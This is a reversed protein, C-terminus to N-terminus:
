QRFCFDSSNTTVDRVCAAANGPVYVQDGYHIVGKGNSFTYPNSLGTGAWVGDSLRTVWIEYTDNSGPTFRTWNTGCNPGWRLELLGGLASEGHPLDAVDTAGSSCETLSNQNFSNAPDLGNCTNGLCGFGTGASAATSALLGLPLGAAMITTVILGKITRRM